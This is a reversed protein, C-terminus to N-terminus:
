EFISANNVLVTLPGGLASSARGILTQTEDEILLNAGLTVANQGRTRIEEAVMEAAEASQGFHVAVDYGREALCLAMARGLRKGAGTVLARKKLQM